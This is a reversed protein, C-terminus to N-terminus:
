KGSGEPAAPAQPALRERITDIVMRYLDLMVSPHLVVPDRATLLQLAREVGSVKSEAAKQAFVAANHAEVLVRYAEIRADHLRKWDEAREREVDCEGEAAKQAALAAGMTKEIKRSYDQQEALDRELVASKEESAALL